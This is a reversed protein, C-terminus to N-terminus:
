YVIGGEEVDLNGGRVLVARPHERPELSLFVGGDVQHLYEPSGQVYSDPNPEHWKDSRYVVTDVVGVVLLDYEPFKVPTQSTAKRQHWTKYIKAAAQSSNQIPQRVNPIKTGPLSALVKTVPNWVMDSQTNNFRDVTFGNPGYYSVELLKGQWGVPGITELSYQAGTPIPTRGTNKNIWGAIGPEELYYNVARWGSVRSLQEPVPAKQSEYYEKTTGYMDGWLDYVERGDKNLNAKRPMKEANIKIENPQRHRHVYRPM